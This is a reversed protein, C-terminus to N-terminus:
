PNFNISMVLSNRFFEIAKEWADAQAQANAELTGGMSFMLRPAMKFMIESAPIIYPAYSLHGADEYGVFDYHYQFNHKKLEAMIQVCGDYSNWMNDQKGAFLLIGAKAYEIKIRAAEKNKAANLAKKHLYTLGFPENKIFCSIMNAFVWHKKYRIFPLSKGQYTWRSVNKFNVGGFCYAHPWFAAVKTIFSYRSALLLALEGGISFGLFQIEKGSTIHNKSLWTFVREFYELPIEALEAPLGKEKFYALALVNFDRSALLSSIPLVACLDGGSGGLVVIIKNDPNETYFLEGVFDDTIKQNKVEPTKFLRELQVCARDEGCEAVIDIFISNNVSINQSIKKLANIDKSKMSVILGMSDVFDYSGADPKQKSLDINGMSDATFWAFAEYLISKAWPLCMSASIKVKSFPPLESIAISIKEDYLAVLPQIQLKM